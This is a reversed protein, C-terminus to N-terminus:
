FLIIDDKLDNLDYKNNQQYEILAVQYGEKGAAFGDEDMSLDVRFDDGNNAVNDIVHQKNDFGYDKSIYLKDKGAKFDWIRDNGLKGGEYYFKDNGKGGWMDDEGKGAFFKDKGKGGYVEDNGKGDMLIDKGDGAKLLDNGKKGKLLDNGGKGKITDNNNTGILKNNKKNGIINAM